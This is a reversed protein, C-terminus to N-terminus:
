ADPIVNDDAADNAITGMAVLTEMYVRGALGGTGMRRHVWGAHASDHFGSLVPAVTATEGQLSHGTESATSATLNVNAGGSTAALAVATTNSFSIYYQTGSVLNTLATNGAAMTYTVLDGVLFKSNATGISIADNSTQVATNSNFTQAAPQTTTIRILAANSNTLTTFTINGSVGTELAASYANSSGCISIKLSSGLAGAYKAYFQVNSNFNGDQLLYNDAHKIIVNAATATTNTYAAANFATNSVARSIYLQNGYALFNAATFFTEFTNSDPKGYRNVLDAENVVLQRIDAPGWKFSGVFAGVTTAVSPVITTLDVESVNVGPSIQFPM